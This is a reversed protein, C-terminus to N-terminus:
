KSWILGVVWLSLPLYVQWIEVVGGMLWMTVKVIAPIYINGEKKSFFM